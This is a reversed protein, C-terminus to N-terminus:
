DWFHLIRGWNWNHKNTCTENRISPTKGVNLIDHADIICMNPQFFMQKPKKLTVIKFNEIVKSKKNQM